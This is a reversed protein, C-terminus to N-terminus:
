NTAARKTQKVLALFVDELSPTIVRAETSVAAKLAPIVATTQALVHLNSGHVSCEMVGPVNLLLDRQEMPNAVSLELLYGQMVRAKLHEPTDLALLRGQSMFAIRHCREAEDMFHTSVIVTTGKQALSHIINFFDRRATPSVGSTPEDLFVLAPSSLLSCGLALRQKYGASLEAVMRSEQGALNSLAVMEEIRSRRKKYPIGYVGAFFDLNEAVTLDHYLSFKQSMYGINQKIKESDQKLDYGLVLGQGATPELIGCLMRIATSKGAGNPGLFGCIEGPSIQLTLADVATFNGFKRTLQETEIAYQM